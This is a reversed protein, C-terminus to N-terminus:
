TIYNNRLWLRWFRNNSRASSRHSWNLLSYSLDLLLASLNARAGESAPKWVGLVYFSIRSGITLSQGAMKAFM